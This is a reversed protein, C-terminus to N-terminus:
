YVDLTAQTKPKNNIDSKSIIQRGLRPNFSYWIDRLQERKWHIDIPIRKNISEKFCKLLIPAYNLSIMYGSTTQANYIKDIHLQYKQLKAVLTNYALLCINYETNYVSSICEDLTERSVRFEFDDELVIVNKYGNKIMDNLVGIHSKGCGIAGNKDKIAEFRQYNLISLKKFENLIHQLRDKRYDLNIFYIKDIQDM